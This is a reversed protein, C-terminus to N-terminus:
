RFNHNYEIETDGLKIVDQGGRRVFEKLLIPQLAPDLVETVNQHPPPLLLFNVCLWNHFSSICFCPRLKAASVLFNICTTSHQLM